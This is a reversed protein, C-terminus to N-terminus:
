VAIKEAALEMRLLAALGAQLDDLRKEADFSLIGRRGFGIRVPSIGSRGNGWRYVAM